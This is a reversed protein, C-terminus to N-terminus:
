ARLRLWVLLALALLLAGTGYDAESSPTKNGVTKDDPQSIVGNSQARAPLEGPDCICGATKCVCAEGGPQIHGAFAVMATGAADSNKISSM